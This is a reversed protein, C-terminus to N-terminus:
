PKTSVYVLNNGQFAARYYTAGCHQYEIGGIQLPTCGTPLKSVVTGIGVSAAGGSQQQAIAAQQQATASQQQATATQQQSSASAASRSKAVSAGVIVGRRRMRRRSAMLAAQPTVAKAEPVLQLYPPSLEPPIDAIFMLAAFPTLIAIKLIYKM